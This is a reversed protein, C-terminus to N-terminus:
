VEEMRKNTKEEKNEEEREKTDCNKNNHYAFDGLNEEQNGEKQTKKRISVSGITIM